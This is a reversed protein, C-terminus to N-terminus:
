KKICDYQVSSTSFSDFYHLSNNNLGMILLYKNNTNITNGNYNGSVNSFTYQTYMFGEKKNKVIINKKYINYKGKLSYNSFKLNITNEDIYIEGSGNTGSCSWDGLISTNTTVNSNSNSNSM